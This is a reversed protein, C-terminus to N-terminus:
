EGNGKDGEIRYLVLLTVLSSLVENLTAAPSESLEHSDVSRKPRHQVFMGRINLVRERVNIDTYSLPFLM